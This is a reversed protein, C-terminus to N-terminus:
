YATTKNVRHSFLTLSAYSILGSAVLWEWPIPTTSQSSTEPASSVPAVAGLVSEVIDATVPAVPGGQTPIHRPVPLVVPEPLSIPTPQVLTDPVTILPSSSSIVLNPILRITVLTNNNDTTFESTASYIKASIPISVEATTDAVAEVVITLSGGTQKDLTGLEWTYTGDGNHGPAGGVLRLSDPLTVSVKTEKAWLNGSNGYTFTIATQEGRKLDPKEVSGFLQLDPRPFLINGTFSDFLTIRSFFWNQGLITTNAITSSEIDVRANGSAVSGRAQNNGTSATATVTNEVTATNSTTVSTRPSNAGLGVPYNKYLYWSNETKYIDGTWGLLDGLWYHPNVIELIFWNSGVLTTNALTETEVDVQSDGSAVLAAQNGGTDATTHFLDTQSFFNDTQISQLVQPSHTTPGSSMFQEEYPLIIDGSFPEFITILGFFGCHGLLTTNLLLALEVETYANGTSVIDEALNNGTTALLNLNNRVHATNNTEINLEDWAELLQYCEVEIDSLDITTDSPDFHSIIATEIESGVVTTNQETEISSSATADGTSTSSNPSETANGGTNAQADVTNTQDASNTTSVQASTTASDNGSMVEPNPSPSPSAVDASDSATASETALVPFPVLSYFLVLALLFQTIKKRLSRTM